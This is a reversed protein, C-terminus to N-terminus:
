PNEFDLIHLNYSLAAYLHRTTLRLCYVPSSLPTSTLPFAQSPPCLFSFLTEIPFHPVGLEPSGSGTFCPSTGYSCGQGIVPRWHLGCRTKVCCLCTSTPVSVNLCARQRRDWLRVVGYYSSGTALLHNGDTQLCYLTSDHPEEWEMVCKRDLFLSHYLCTGERWGLKGLSPSLNPLGIPQLPTFGSESAEKVLLGLPSPRRQLPRRHAERDEDVDEQCVVQRLIRSLCM